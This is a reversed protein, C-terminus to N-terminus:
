NTNLQKEGRPTGTIALIHCYPTGKSILQSQNLLNVAWGQLFGKQPLTLQPIETPYNVTAEWLYDDLWRMKLEFDDRRDVSKQKIFSRIM